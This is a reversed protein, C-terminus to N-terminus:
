EINNSLIDEERTKYHNQRTRVASEGNENTTFDRVGFGLNEWTNSNRGIRLIVHKVDASGRPINLVEDFSRPEKDLQVMVYDRYNEPLAAYAYNLFTLIFPPVEEADIMSESRGVRPFVSMKKYGRLNPPVAREVRLIGNMGHPYNKMEILSFFSLITYLYIIFVFKM